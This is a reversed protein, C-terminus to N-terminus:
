NIYIVKGPQSLNQRLATITEPNTLESGDATEMLGLEKRRQREEAAKEKELKIPLPKSNLVIPPVQDRELYKELREAHM